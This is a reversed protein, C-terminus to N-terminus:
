LEDVDQEMGCVPTNIRKFGENKSTSSVLNGNLNTDDTARLNQIIYDTCTMGSEDKHSTPSPKQKNM